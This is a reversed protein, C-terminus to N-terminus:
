EFRFSGIELIEGLVHKQHVHVRSIIRHAKFESRAFACLPGALSEPVSHSTTLASASKEPTPFHGKPTLSKSKQATCKASIMARQKKSVRIFICRMWALFHKRHKHTYMHTGKQRRTRILKLITLTGGDM